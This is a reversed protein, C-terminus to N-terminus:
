QDSDNFTLKRKTGVGNSVACSNEPAHYVSSYNSSVVCKPTKSIRMEIEHMMNYCCFVNEIELSGWFSIFNMKLEMAKRTLRKDSSAALVAAAAIVSSRHDVLNIEKIMLVILHLAKSVLGEPKSEGYFKHIFYSLYAFPTITSMKWELTSVVLLEMRQVVKNEFHDQTPYESLVPLRREEMKAALSLCAVSLLRIVWLKGNDISKKSLFRDLYMVSMYATRIQFGFLTRTKFMWEIANLRACQPWKNRITIPYDSICSTERQILKEIYEDDDDDKDNLYLNEDDEAETEFFSVEEETEQCLLNSCSFYSEFEGM